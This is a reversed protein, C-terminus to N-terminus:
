RCKNQGATSSSRGNDEATAELHGEAAHEGRANYVIHEMM